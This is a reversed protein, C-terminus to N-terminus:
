KLNDRRSRSEPITPSDEIHDYLEGICIQSLLVLVPPSATNPGGHLGRGKSIEENHAAVLSNGLLFYGILTEM